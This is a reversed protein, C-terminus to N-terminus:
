VLKPKYYAVVGKKFTKTDRYFNTTLDILKNEYKLYVMAELEDAITNNITQVDM